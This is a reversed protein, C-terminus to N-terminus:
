AKNPAQSIKRNNSNWFLISKNKKLQQLDNIKMQKQMETEPNECDSSFALACRKLSM